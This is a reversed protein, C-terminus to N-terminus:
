WRWRCQTCGSSSHYPGEQGRSSCRHWPWHLWAARECATHLSCSPGEVGLRLILVVPRAAIACICLAPLTERGHPLIHLVLHVVLALPSSLLLLLPHQHLTCSRAAAVTCPGSISSDEIAVQLLATTPHQASPSPEWNLHICLSRCHHCLLLSPGQWPYSNSHPCSVWQPECDHWV